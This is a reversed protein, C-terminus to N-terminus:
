HSDNQQDLESADLERDAYILQVIGEHDHGRWQLRLGAREATARSADNTEALTAVVPRGAAVSRAAALAAQCLETALGHGHAEPRFRYYLNWWDRRGEVACGGVGVCAGVPLGAVPGRLRAVWYGLGDRHWQEEMAVVKTRTYHMSTHRGQPRYRWVREDAHLAAIEALEAMGAPVLGLRATAVVGVGRSGATMSTLM